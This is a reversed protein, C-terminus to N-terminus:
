SEKGKRNIKNKNISFCYKTLKVSWKTIEKCIYYFFIGLSFCVLCLGLWVLSSVIRGKFLYIFFLILEIFSGVIFSVFISWLSIVIAWLSIYLSFIIAFFAILLSLWIPSGVALLVIEGVKLRRKIKDKNIHKEYVIQKVIEEISGIDKIADEESMGEEIRNDIMENYFALCDKVEDKPLFSLEKKLLRLFEEKCM